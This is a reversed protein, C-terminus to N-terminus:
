YTNNGATTVELLRGNIRKCILRDEVKEVM